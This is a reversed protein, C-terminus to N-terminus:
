FRTLFDKVSYILIKSSSIDAELIRIKKNLIKMSMYNKLFILYTQTEMSQQPNKDNVIYIRDFKNVNMSNLLDRQKMISVLPKRMPDIQEEMSKKLQLMLPRDNGTLCIKQEQELQFLTDLSLLKAPNEKPVATKVTGSSKEKHFAVSPTGDTTLPRVLSSAHYLIHGSTIFPDPIFVQALNSNGESFAKWCFYRKKNNTILLAKIPYTRKKTISNLVAMAPEFDPDSFGSDTLIVELAEKYCGRNKLEKILEEVWEYWQCSFSPFNSSFAEKLSANRSGCIIIRKM